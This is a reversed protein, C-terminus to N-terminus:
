FDPRSIKSIENEASCWTETTKLETITKLDTKYLIAHVM